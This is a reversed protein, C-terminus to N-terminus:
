AGKQDSLFVHNGIMGTVRMQEDWGKGDGLLRRHVYHTAGKTNDQFEGAVLGAAIYLCERLVPDTPIPNVLLQKSLSILLAANPDGANWCSFQAKALCVAQYTDGGFRGLRVRNRLVNGVAIKGEVSEGRSEGWITLGVLSGAEAAM